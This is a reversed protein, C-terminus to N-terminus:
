DPSRQEFQPVYGGKPITILIPDSKGATLYYRELARRM